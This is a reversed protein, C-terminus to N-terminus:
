METVDLKKNMKLCNGGTSKKKKPPPPPKQPNFGSGPVPQAYV